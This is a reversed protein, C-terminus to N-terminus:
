SHRQKQLKYAINAQQQHYAIQEKKNSLKPTHKNIDIAKSPRKINQLLIGTRLRSNNMIEAVLLDENQNLERKLDQRIQNPFKAVCCVRAPKVTYNSERNLSKVCIQGNEYKEFTVCHLGSSTNRSSYILIVDGKELTKMREKFDPSKSDFFNSGLKDKYYKQFAYCSINPHGYGKMLDPQTNTSAIINELLGKITPDEISCYSYMAGAVCYFRGNNITNPSVAKSMKAAYQARARPIDIQLQSITSIVENELQLTKNEVIKTIMNEKITDDKIYERINADLIEEGSSLTTANTVKGDHDDNKQSYQAGINQPALLLATLIAAKIWINKPNLRHNISRMQRARIKTEEKKM